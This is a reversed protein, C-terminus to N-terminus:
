SYLNLCDPALHWSTFGIDSADSFVAPAVHLLRDLAFCYWAFLDRCAYRPTSTKSRPTPKGTTSLQLFLCPTSSCDEERRRSDRFKATRKRHEYVLAKM